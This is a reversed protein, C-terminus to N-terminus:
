FGPVYTNHGEAHLLLHVVMSQLCTDGPTSSIPPRVDSSPCEFCRVHLTQISTRIGPSGKKPASHQQEDAPHPCAGASSHAQQVWRCREDLVLALTGMENMPPAGARENV